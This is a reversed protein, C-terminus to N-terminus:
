SNLIIRFTTGANEESTKVFIKGNHYVEIIRKALTLGLGWGRKKTTFGPNFVQNVKSKSIGKGNDAIDIFVRSESGHMITIRINGAGGMADVSNKCMNEVV